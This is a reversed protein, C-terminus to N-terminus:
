HIKRGSAIRFHDRVGGPMEVFQTVFQEVSVVDATFHAGMRVLNTM